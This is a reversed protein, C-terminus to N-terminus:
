AEMEKEEAVAELYLIREEMSKMQLKHRAAVDWALRNHKKNVIRGIIYGILTGVVFCISFWLLM